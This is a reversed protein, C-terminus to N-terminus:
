GLHAAEHACPSGRSQIITGLAIYKIGASYDRAERKRKRKSESKYTGRRRYRIKSKNKSKNNTENVDDYRQQLYMRSKVEIDM